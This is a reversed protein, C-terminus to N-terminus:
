QENRWEKAKHLILEIYENKGSTYTSRDEPYQRALSEKLRSYKKADEEHCNLYDRFNIYNNWIEQGWIVVHIHHTRINNEMDGCVYLHQNLHDQNRYYIGNKNLVDNHKLIKDFDNVGVVIDIIPKACICKISTSGIHQADVMDEQLLNKLKDIIERASIEWEIRHPEVAVTGRRLGISMCDGGNGARKGTRVKTSGMCEWANTGCYYMEMETMDIVILDIVRM